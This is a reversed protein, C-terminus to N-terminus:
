TTRIPIVPPAYAVRKQHLFTLSLFCKSTRDKPPLIIKFQIIVLTNCIHASVGYGPSKFCQRHQVDAESSPSFSLGFRTLCFYISLYILFTHM